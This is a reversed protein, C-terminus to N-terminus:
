LSAEIFVPKHHQRVRSVAGGRIFLPRTPLQVLPNGASSLLATAVDSYERVSRTSFMPAGAANVLSHSARTALAEGPTTLVGVGVWLADLATTHAGWRRSDLSLACQSVRGMHAESSKARAATLLAAGRVGRAGVEARLARQSDRRGRGTWRGAGTAIWLPVRARLLASMWVDM